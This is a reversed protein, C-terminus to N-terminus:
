RLGDLALNLEVVNVHREGVFGLARGEINEGVLRRVASAPLGRARAVRDVQLYAYEPSIDPDLGSGSATLADPPGAAAAGGM